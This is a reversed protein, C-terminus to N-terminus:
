AEQGMWLAGGISDRIAGTVSALTTVNERWRLVGLLAMILAEKFKVTQEDPVVVTVQLPVLKEGILSILFSNLAGGGTVLLKQEGNQEHLNASLNGIANRIQVSIHECYTRLKGQISVPYNQIMPLIVETGFENALSKPWAHTYYDLANLEELLSENIHGQKAWQGGEDYPKGLQSALSNLVRNAPCIDFAIVKDETHCSVNAIGGINLFLKYDDFLLQEGRPVIPAGQGNLAVDLNRLDSVVAMNTEAAIAAGDGLQTTLLQKPLHFVTHGHSAILDAQLHINNKEIFHNIMKGLYHGYDAHLLCYDLASLQSAKELREKWEDSYPLCDATKIEYNWKGAQEHFHVFVLDLGDLSSGSM